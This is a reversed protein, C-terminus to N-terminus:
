KQSPNSKKSQQHPEKIKLRFGLWEIKKVYFTLKIWKIAANNKGSVGWVENWHREESGRTAILIGVLHEHAVPLHFLRSEMVLQFENPMDALGYFM